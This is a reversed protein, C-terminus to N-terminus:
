EKIFYFYLFKEGNIIKYSGDFHAGLWKLWKVHVTNKEWVYNLMHKYKNIYEEYIEKTKRLFMVPKEEVRYTCLMWVIHEGFVSHEVGGICYVEGTDADKVVTSKEFYMRPVEDSGLSIKVELIDEARVNELFDDLEKETLTDTILIPKDEKCLKRGM